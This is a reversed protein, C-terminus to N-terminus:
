NTYLAAYIHETKFVNDRAHMNDKKKGKLQNNKEGITLRTNNRQAIKESM